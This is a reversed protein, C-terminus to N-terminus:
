DSRAKFGDAANRVAPTPFTATWCQGNAASANRAGAAANIMRLSVGQIGHAAFLREAADLLSEKTDVNPRRPARRPRGNRRGSRRVTGRRKSM